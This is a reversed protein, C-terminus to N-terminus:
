TLMPSACFLDMPVQILRVAHLPQEDKLWQYAITTLEKNSTVQVELRVSANENTHLNQSHSFSVRPTTLSANIKLFHFTHHPIELEKINSTFHTKVQNAMAGLGVTQSVLAQKLSNMTSPKPHQKKTQSPQCHQNEPRMLQM